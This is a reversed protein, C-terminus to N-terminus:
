AKRAAERLAAQVTADLVNLGSGYMLEAMLRFTGTLQNFLLRCEEPTLVEPLRRQRCAKKFDSFDGLEKGFVERLLFVIANLAQRQTLAEKWVDVQQSDVVHKHIAEAMFQRAKSCKIKLPDQGVQALFSEIAQRYQQRPAEPVSSQALGQPWKSFRESVSKVDM